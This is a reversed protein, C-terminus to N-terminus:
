QLQKLSEAWKALEADLEKLSEEEEAVVDAPARDRFTPDNLRGKKAQARTQLSEMEKQIRQREVALDVLGALPVILDWADCGPGAPLHSVVAGSPREAKASLTMKEVGALRQIAAEHESLIELGKGGRVTLMVRDKPPIRFTSRINRIETIVGQLRGFAEEAKVDLRAPDPEPWLAKMITEQGGSKKWLEETIFPMVPHLLKLTQALLYRLVADTQNPVTGAPSQGQERQLKAIELYWDCFDHWVFQYLGRAVENFKYAELSATV